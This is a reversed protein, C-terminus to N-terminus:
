LMSNPNIDMSFSIPSNVLENYLIEYIKYYYEVVKGKFIMNWRFTNKVKSIHCPSPGLITLDEDKIFEKLIYRLRNSVKILESENQSTLLVYLIDTFPPNNMIKRMKIEYDYFNKFDHQSAFQIIPNDPDYTQIVVKGLKDGRGARGSVQSILQFTREASKYDPLNLITDATIIGVLTVNKFDMGKAIMQTGILIDAEGNKFARYIKEHAGKNKTTDMDMRLVRADPFYKLIESEIKETGAGFYKIYKSGCKPCINPISYDKGCYHCNLTNNYYHYTLTIDCDFCKAVYGCSRCSVFTSYGRRNIFLITQNKENLNSAIEELLKKSFVSRNGSKLEKKMDVITVEPLNINNARKLIEILHYTGNKANYYSELSPTASGLILLGNSAEIRLKAVYRADYKPTIESKYTHEHEEDIIILKLNKVPAFVASRAGVVLKVEGNYIRRWEDFREGESLRSHIVAVNAGFRGKFREVTQPTLSIEPVLIIAGYGNNLFREIINLYIETKGSGTVGYILSINKGNEYSSLIEDIAKKQELNLEIKDYRFDENHPIRYTEVYEKKILGKNILTKIVASSYCSKNKLDKSSIIGNNSILEKLIQIQRQLRKADENEELFRCAEKVDVAMYVLERKPKVSLDATEKFEIIGKKYLKILQTRKISEGILKEIKDLDIYEDHTYKLFEYKEEYKKDFNVRKILIKTKLNNPPLFLKVAEYFTCLYREKIKRAIEITKNDIIINEDIVDYIKKLENELDSYENINIVLGEILKNGAGFPVIVRKGIEIYEELEEPIIYDFEKDLEKINTNIIISAIKM